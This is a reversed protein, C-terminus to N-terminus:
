SYHVGRRAVRLATTLGDAFQAKADPGLFSAVEVRQGRSVLNLHQTGFEEHEQRDLKVWVPNFRWERAVGRPSVKHLQLELPTVSIEEYARASRFSAGFALYVILVDLGFFGAVPWAGMLVFPMSTVCGGLAVFLLLLRVQARTLSRHPRLRQKFLLEDAPDSSTM